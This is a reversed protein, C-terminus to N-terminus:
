RQRRVRHLAYTGGRRRRRPCRDDGGPPLPGAIESPADRKAPASIVKALPAHSPPPFGERALEGVPPIGERSTSTDCHGPRFLTGGRRHHLARYRDTTNANRLRPPSREVRGLM